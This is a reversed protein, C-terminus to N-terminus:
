RYSRWKRGDDIYAAGTALWDALCKAGLEMLEGTEEYVATAVAAEQKCGECM